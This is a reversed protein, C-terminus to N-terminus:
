AAEWRGYRVTPRFSFHPWQFGPVAVLIAANIVVAFLGKGDLDQLGGDWLVVFVGAYFGSSGAVVPRWWTQSLPIAVAGVVLVTALM